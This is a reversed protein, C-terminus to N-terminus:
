NNYSPMLKLKNLLWNEFWPKVEPFDVTSQMLETAASTRGTKNNDSEISDGDNSNGDHSNGDNSDDGKIPNDKHISVSNTLSRTLQTKNEAALILAQFQEWSMARGDAILAQAMVQQEQHPRPDPIVVLPTNCGYVQAVANLGCAMILCDSYNIFPMVDDVETAIDVYGRASETIPGLSIIFADPMLQRLRPLKEDIAEHGGYGKIVTVLPRDKLSQSGSNASPTTMAILSQLFDDYSLSNCNNDSNNDTTKDTNNLSNNPSNNFNIFDLYLTKQRLWNPSDASELTEPYPALLGLAGNFATVHPLDDRSGPLRVYLYPISAARCLMAVEVSVDIIMLEIKHQQITTLLQHSRTQIDSNGVPSYHLCSPQWHEGARGPLVDTSLEDEASLRIIQSEPIAKFRYSETAVSTFLTIHSREDSPLLSALKDAQRCHGSGHHHAYYGINMM